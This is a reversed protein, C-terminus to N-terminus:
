EPGAARVVGTSSGSPTQKLSYLARKLIEDRLTDAPRTGDLRVIFPEDLSEFIAACKQLYEANEFLNPKGDRSTIRSSASGTPIELLFLLDPAPAFAENAKLIEDVDIGRAGQYAVSSHYYRDIIVVKGAELAPKILDAVHERRDELFLDFEDRPSLRGTKSSERIRSGFQGDTPEHTMVVEAGRETLSEGLLQAQTSKGSGDIGEFVILLGKSRDSSM